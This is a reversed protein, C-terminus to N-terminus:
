QAEYCDLGSQFGLCNKYVNRIFRLVPINEGSDGM